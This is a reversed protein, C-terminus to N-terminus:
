DKKLAGLAAFPSEKEEGERLIGKRSIAADANPGRPYPDLALALTQAVAEGIDFRGNDMPMLDIDDQEVLIEAEDSDDALTEEAVFHLQFPQNIHSAFDELTIVCSQVIDARLTGTVHVDEGQREYSCDASLTNIRVLGFRAALAACEAESATISAPAQELQAAFALRSLEALHTDGSM